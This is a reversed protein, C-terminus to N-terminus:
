KSEEFMAWIIKLLLLAIEDPPGPMCFHNDVEGEVAGKTLYKMGETMCEIDIYLAGSEYFRARQNKSWKSIRGGGNYTSLWFAQSGAAQVELAIEVAQQADIPPNNGPNVFVADYSSITNNGHKKRADALGKDPETHSFQFHM